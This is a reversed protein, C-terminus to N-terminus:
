SPALLCSEMHRRLERIGRCQPYGACGWFVSTRGTRKVMTRKCYPCAPTTVSASRLFVPTWNTVELLDDDPGLSADRLLAQLEVGSIMEIPKGAAFDRADNTFTGTTVFIGRSAGESVLVGFFERIERAGVKSVNWSKCQVLVRENGRKLDLDIGGDSGTGASLKVCYGKRQYIQGVLLEFEDWTLDRPSRKKPEFPIPPPEVSLVSKRVAGLPSLVPTSGKGWRKITAIIFRMAGAFIGFLFLKVLLSRFLISPSSMAAIQRNAPIPTNEPGGQPSFSVNRTAPLGLNFFPAPTVALSSQASPPRGPTPVPTYGLIKAADERAKQDKAAKWEFEYKIAQPLDFTISTGVIDSHAVAGRSSGSRDRYSRALSRFSEVSYGPHREVAGRDKKQVWAKGGEAEFVADREFDRITLTGGAKYVATNWIKRYEERVIYDNGDTARLLACRLSWGGFEFTIGKAGQLLPTQFQKLGEHKELGYRAEAQDRTDGLRAWSLGAPATCLLAILAFKIM